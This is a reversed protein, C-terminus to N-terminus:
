RKTPINISLTLFKQSWLMVKFSIVSLRRVVPCKQVGGADKLTLMCLHAVNYESFKTRVQYSFNHVCSIKLVNDQERSGTVLESVVFGSNERYKNLFNKNQNQNQCLM